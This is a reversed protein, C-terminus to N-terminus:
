VDGERKRSPNPSPSDSGIEALAETIAEVVGDTNTLVDNNWFRILRFGKRKIYATRGADKKAQDAHHGGDIEIVLKPTRAVFDCVFPGIPFQTNFRTDAVQRTRIRSWLRREAPTLNRRLERSRATPRKSGKDDDRNALLGEGL